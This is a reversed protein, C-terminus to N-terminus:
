TLEPPAHFSTESIQPLAPHGYREYFWELVKAQTRATGRQEGARTRHGMANKCAPLDSTANAFIMRSRATKRSCIISSTPNSVASLPPTSIGRCRATRGLPCVRQTQHCPRSRNKQFAAEDTESDGGGANHPPMSDPQVAHAPPGEPSPEPQTQPVAEEETQGEGQVSTSPPPAAHDALQAHVGPADPYLTALSILDILWIFGGYELPEQRGLLEGSDIKRRLTKESRGCLKVALKLPVEPKHFVRHFQQGHSHVANGIAEWHSDLSRLYFNLEFPIFGATGRGASLSRARPAAPPATGMALMTSM